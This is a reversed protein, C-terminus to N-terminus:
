TGAVVVSQGPALGQGTIQVLGAADDFIGLRVPVIKHTGDSEVVDVAYGAASQALLATIPVALANQVSATVVSVQVSANDLGALSAAKTPAIDVGVTPASNAGGTSTAVKAISSIAAAATTGDAFTFTAPDGVKLEPAVSPDVQVVVEETSSTTQLVPQGAQVTAGLTPTISAVRVGSPLFLADGLMLQGTVPLGVKGQFRELAAATAASFVDSKPSLESSTAYGLSVLGANLERVDQGSLGISLTRYAPELGYLLIVPRGGVSYLSQGQSVIQGLTPLATIVGDAQDVVPATSSASAYPDDAIYQVTGSVTQQSTLPGQAIEQLAVSAPPTDVSAEPAHHLPLLKHYRLAAAGAGLVLLAAVGATVGRRRRGSARPVLPPATGHRELSALM